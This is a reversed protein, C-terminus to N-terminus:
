KTGKNAAALVRFNRLADCAGKYFTDNVELGLVSKAGMSEAARLSSGSGCTPDLM